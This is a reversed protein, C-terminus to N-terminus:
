QGILAVFPDIDYFTVLEDGDCDARIWDCEPYAANYAVPGSLALVFPDIDYFDVDGDCDMDGTPEGALPLDVLQGRLEGQPYELTYLAVYTNGELLAPVYEPPFIMGTVVRGIGGDELVQWEMGPGLPFIPPGNQGPAGLHIMAALLQERAIGVVSVSIVFQQTGGDYGLVTSGFSPPDGTPPPVVETSQLMAGRMACTDPDHIGSSAFAYAAVTAPLAGWYRVALVAGYYDDHNPPGVHRVTGRAAAMSRGFPRVPPALPPPTWWAAPAVEGMCPAVNHRARHVASVRQPWTPTGRLTVPSSWFQNPLGALAHTDVPPTLPGHTAIQGYATMGEMKGFGIPGASAPAASVLVIVAAAFLSASPGRCLRHTCGTQLPNRHPHETSM